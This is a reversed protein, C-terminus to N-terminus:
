FAPLVSTKPIGPPNMGNCCVLRAGFVSVSLFFYFLLEFDSKVIKSHHMMFISLLALTDDPHLDRAAGWERISYCYNERRQLPSHQHLDLEPIWNGVPALVKEVEIPHHPGVSQQIPLM